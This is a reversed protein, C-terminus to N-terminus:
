GPNLDFLHNLFTDPSQVDIHYKDVIERPFDKLNSTVIVDAQCMIAAALAHRDNPDPPELSDIIEEYNEVLCDPVAKNMQEVTWQLQEVKLDPRNELLNNVWEKQIEVTWKARFQDRMAVSMILDRLHAPYLVCADFVATFSAM